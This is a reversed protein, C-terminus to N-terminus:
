LEHESDDDDDSSDSDDVEDDADHRKAKDNAWKNEVRTHMDPRYAQQKAFGTTTSATTSSKRQRHGQEIPTFAAWSGNTQATGTASPAQQTSDSDNSVSDNSRLRSSTTDRRSDDRIWVGHNETRPNTGTNSVTDYGARSGLDSPLTSGMSKFTWASNAGQLLLDSRHSVTLPVCVRENELHDYYEQEKV